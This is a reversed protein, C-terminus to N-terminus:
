EVLRVARVNPNFYQQIDGSGYQVDYHFTVAGSGLAVIDGLIRGLTGSTGQMDVFAGPAVIDAVLDFNGALDIFSEETAYIALAPKQNGTACPNGSCTGTYIFDAGNGNFDASPPATDYNGHVFFIAPGEAEFDGTVEIDASNTLVVEHFIYVYGTRFVATDGSVQCGGGGSSYQLIFGGAEEALCKAFAYRGSGSVPSDIYLQSLPAMTRNGLNYNFGKIPFGVDTLGDDLDEVARKSSYTRRAAPGSPATHVHGGDSNHDLFHDPFHTPETCDIPDMGANYIKSGHVTIGADIPAPSDSAFGPVRISRDVANGAGGGVYVRGTASIVGGWVQCGDFVIDNNSGILVENGCNTGADCTGNFPMTSPPGQYDGQASDFSDVVNKVTLQNCAFLGFGDIPANPYSVVATAVSTIGLSFTDIGAIRAFFSQVPVTADVDVSVATGSNVVSVSTVVDPDMDNASLINRVSALQSADTVDTTLLSALAAMDLREQAQQRRVYAYGVDVVLSVMGLFLTTGLAFLVTVTGQRGSDRNRRRPTM